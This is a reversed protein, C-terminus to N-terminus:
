FSWISARWWERGPILFVHLVHAELLCLLTIIWLVWRCFQKPNSLGQREAFVRAAMWWAVASCWFLSPWLISLNRAFFVAQNSMLLLYGVCAALTPLWVRIVRQDHPQSLGGSRLCYVIAVVTLLMGSWAYQDGICRLIIYAMPLGPRFTNYDKHGVKFYWVQNLVDHIFVHLEKFWYPCLLTFGAAMGILIVAVGALMKELGFEGGTTLDSLTLMGYVMALILVTGANYKCAVALGGIFGLVSLRFLWARLTVASPRCVFYATWAVALLCFTGTSTNVAVYTSDYISEPSLAFFISAALAPPCLHLRQGLYALMGIQAPILLLFMLRVRYRFLEWWITQPTEFVSLLVPNPIESKILDLPAAGGTIPNGGVDRSMSALALIDAAVCLYMTGTPHYFFHPNLDGTYIINLSRGITHLEDSHGKLLRPIRVALALAIVLGFLIPWRGKVILNKIIVSIM